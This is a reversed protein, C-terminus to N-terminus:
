FNGPDSGSKDWSLSISSASDALFKCYVIHFNLIWPAPFVKTGFFSVKIKSSYTLVVIGNNEGPSQLRYNVLSFALYYALYVQGSTSM